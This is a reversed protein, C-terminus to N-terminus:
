KHIRLHAHEHVNDLCVRVCPHGCAQPTPLVRAPSASGQEWLGVAEPRTCTEAQSRQSTGRGKGKAMRVSCQAHRLVTCSSRDRYRRSDPKGVFELSRAGLVARLVRPFCGRPLPVARVAAVGYLAELRGGAVRRGVGSRRVAGAGPPCGDRLARGGWVGAGSVGHACAGCAPRFAAGVGWGGLLGM